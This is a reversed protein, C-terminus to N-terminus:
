PKPLITTDAKAAGPPKTLYLGSSLVIQDIGLGDERVQIRVRHTGTTAFYIMPGLVGTGYGNDEWGWGSVGCGSCAELVYATADATGIRYVPTGSANVSHDFQVFASDNAYSNAAARGRIWLRYPVGALAQFSLEFYATPAAAATLLKPVGRDPNQLRAGGAASADTVRNWGGGATADIARLVTERGQSTGAAAAQTMTLTRDGIAVAGTRAVANPNPDARITITAPGGGAQPGVSLWPQTPVAAWSCDPAATWLSLQTSAGSAPISMSAPTITFPCETDFEHAGVDYGLHRRSGGGFYDRPSAVTGFTTLDLGRDIAPSAATLRYHYLGEILAGSAFTPGAGPARFRPDATLGTDVGAVREQGTATRWAALSGYSLDRWLLRFSAGTPWYLNGDLRVDVSHDLASQSASVVRVSGTTQVINNRIHVHEPDNAEIGRNGIEIGRPTASATAAMYITNNHIEASTIRGWLHIGGYKNRRGDNQSVNYRVVNGAHIRDTRGHALMFGAGDNAHSYNYQLISNSTGSDLDFGGGDAPGGTRNDYSENFQIVVQNSDYAWIGVPGESATSRWGNSYAVSREITGGDVGGLVIGSGSNVSLGSFGANLFARTSGVYVDRHVARQFAYTLLGGLGNERVTAAEIRVSRFGSRNNWGGIEIGYDGFGSVDVQEISVGALLLDGPLDNYFLIGSGTNVDRGGGTVALNAIRVGATNYVLIATGQANSITARGNSGYSGITVPLDSRGADVRDLYLQGSFTRGGEFLVSDGPALQQQNVRDLSRWSSAISTGTRGDDGSAAVHYTAAKAATANTLSVVSLLLAAVRHAPLACRAHKMM